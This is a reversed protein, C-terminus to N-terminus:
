PPAVIASGALRPTGSENAVNLALQVMGNELYTDIGVHITMKDGPPVPSLFRMRYDRIQHPQLEDTLMRASLAMTFMGHAFVDQYGLARAVDPDVHYEGHDHSAGAYLALSMRSVPDFTRAGVVSGKDPRTMFLANLDLTDAAHDPARLASQSIMQQSATAPERQDLVESYRISGVKAGHHNTVTTETVFFTLLGDKKPYIDVLEELFTLRDGACIVGDYAFAQEAHFLRGSDHDIGLADWWVGPFIVDSKAVFAYTPPALIGRYGQQRAITDDFRLPNTEGIAQAFLRLLGSEVEVTAPGKTQGILSTDVIM